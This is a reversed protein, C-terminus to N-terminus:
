ERKVGHRCEFKTYTPYTCPERAPRIFAILNNAVPYSGTVAAPVRESSFPAPLVSEAVPAPSHPRVCCTVETSITHFQSFAAVTLHRGHIEQAMAGKPCPLVMLGFSLLVATGLTKIM